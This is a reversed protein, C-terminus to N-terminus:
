MASSFAKVTKGNRELRMWVPAYTFDDCNTWTTQGNTATRTVAHCYRWGTGGLTIGM